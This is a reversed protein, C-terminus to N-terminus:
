QIYLCMHSKNLIFAGSFEEEGCTEDEEPSVLRLYSGFGTISMLTLHYQSLDTVCFDTTRNRDEGNLGLFSSFNRTHQYKLLKCRDYWM